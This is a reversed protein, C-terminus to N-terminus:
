LKQFELLYNTCVNSTNSRIRNLLVLFQDYMENAHKEILSANLVELLPKKTREELYNNSRSVEENLRTECKKMYDVVNHTSLFESSEQAYYESTAKLFPQEFSNVYIILNPKKLDQIDISLFVLSKIASSILNTDVLTNDRQLKILGLVQEILEDANPQFM